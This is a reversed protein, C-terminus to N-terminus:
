RDESAPGEEDFNIPQSPRRMYEVDHMAARFEDIERNYLYAYTLSAAILGLVVGGLITVGIGALISLILRKAM